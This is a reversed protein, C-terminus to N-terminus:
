FFVVLWFKRASHWASWWQCSSPSFHLFFPFLSISSFFGSQFCRPPMFNAARGRPHATSSMDCTFASFPKSGVRRCNSAFIFRLSLFFLPLAAWGEKRRCGETSQHFPNYFHQLSAKKMENGGGSRLPKRNGGAMAKFIKTHCHFNFWRKRKVGRWRVEEEKSPAKNELDPLLYEWKMREDLPTRLVCSPNSYWLLPEALLHLLQKCTNIWFSSSSLLAM